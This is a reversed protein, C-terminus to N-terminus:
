SGDIRRWGRRLRRTEADFAFHNGGNQVARAMRARGRPALRRDPVPVTPDIPVDPHTIFSAVQIRGIM